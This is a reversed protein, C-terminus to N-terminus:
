PFDWLRFEIIYVVHVSNPKPPIRLRVEVTYVYPIQKLDYRSPRSTKGIEEM